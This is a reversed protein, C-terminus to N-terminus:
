WARLARWRRLNDLLEYFKVATRGAVPYLLVGGPVRSRPADHQGVRQGSAASGGFGDLQSLVFTM